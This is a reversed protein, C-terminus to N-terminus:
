RKIKARIAAALEDAQQSGILLREGSALVLQVGRNGSMNYAKGGRGWRIGWGGYERLPSYTRAECSEIEGFPLFRNVFPPMRVSVGDDRVETVMKWAYLILLVALEVTIVAVLVGASAKGTAWGVIAPVLAGVAAVGLVVWLWPQRFHQVERFTPESAYSHDMRTFIGRTVLVTLCRLALKWSALLNALM